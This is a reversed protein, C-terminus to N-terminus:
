FAEFLVNDIELEGYDRREELGLELVRKALLLLNNTRRAHLICVNM